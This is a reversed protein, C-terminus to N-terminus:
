SPVLFPRSHPPPAWSPWSIRQKRSPFFLSPVIEGSHYLSTYHSINLPTSLSVRYQVSKRQNRHQALSTKPGAFSILFSGIIILPRGCKVLHFQKAENLNLLALRGGSLGIVIQSANVSAAVIERGRWTDDHGQPTWPEGTLHYLGLAEDFELLNICQNTVQVVLSSDAYSSTTRGGATKTVRRAINSLALTPVSTELGEASADM